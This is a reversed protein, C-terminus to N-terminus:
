GVTINAYLAVGGPLSGTPVFRRRAGVADTGLGAVWASGNWFEWQGNTTSSSAQTLVLANTDARFINITHIGPAVGFLSTQVVGFTGNSTNFDGFNWRYQSPLPDPTEYVLAMNMIRAPVMIDTMLQFEAMFQVESASGAGSLDGNAPVPSWAGSNDSIGATRFYLRYGSPVKGFAASGINSVANVFVRYFRQATQGLAMRPFIVRQNTTAAYNWDAGIPLVYLFNTAASTGAIVFFLYGAEMWIFPVITGSPAHLFPVSGVSASSQDIQTIAVNGITEFQGSDTRYQTSYMRGSTTAIVLRDFSDAGDFAAMGGTAAFTSTGGPPVELMADAVFTTSGATIGSLPVRCVRSATVFYLSPVGSGPGHSATWVRGNNNQGINGVVTQTGTVTLDAGATLNAAGSTLVLASRINYRFVRATTAAGDVVYVDHQQWSARAVISLGASTTNTITAADRLWYVARINDVTTAAPITTGSLVFNEIRLGKAVFLGGNTVTASTTTVAARLEEIVYPGNTVTGASGTLTISGDGGIASVEFWTTIAAPNTSGFGIRSGVAIRDTQWATGTGTVATGSASATGVTYLDRTMRLGRLTHATATPFTLTVFGIFTAVNTSLVYTFLQIRRTAAASSGDAVFVWFLDSTIQLPHVAGAPIAASTEVPRVTVGPRPGVFRDEPNASLAFQGLLSGVNISDPNYAPLTSVPLTGNFLQEIAVKM